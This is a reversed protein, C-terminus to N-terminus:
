TWSVYCHSLKLNNSRESMACQTRAMHNSIQMLSCTYGIFNRPLIHVCVSECFHCLDYLIKPTRPSMLHDARESFTGYSSTPLNDTTGHVLSTSSKGWFQNTLSMLMSLWKRELPMLSRKINSCVEAPVLVTSGIRNFTEFVSTEAKVTYVFQLWQHTHSLSYSLRRSFSEQAQYLFTTNFPLYSLVTVPSFWICVCM